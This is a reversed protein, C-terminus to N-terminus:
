SIFDPHSLWFKEFRFPKPRPPFGPDMSFVIPWHDSGTKPMINAEVAPESELLAETTLFRDLRCAVHHHGTRKNSWTFIGNRTEIDVMNLQEILTIFMGSDQELRKSGGAKEELTLIMNFDGGIIWNPSQILTQIYHLSQIFREKDQISQPGYVNTIVGEKSSAIDKFLATLTDRTSFPHLLTVTQPNWLIALGGSAGVSDQFLFEGNRWSNRFIDEAERGACKTEQLLLIDPNETKICERLIRQKSRGM